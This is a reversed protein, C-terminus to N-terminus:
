VSKYLCRRHHHRIRNVDRRGGECLYKLLKTFTKVVIFLFFFYFYVPFKSYNGLRVSGFCFLKALFFFVCSRTVPFDYIRLRWTMIELSKYSDTRFRADNCVTSIYIDYLLSPPRGGPHAVLPRRTYPPSSTFLRVRTFVDRVRHSVAPPFNSKANRSENANAGTGTCFRTGTYTV